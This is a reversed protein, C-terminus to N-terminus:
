PPRPRGRLDGHAIPAGGGGGGGWAPPGPWLHLVPHDDFANDPDCLGGHESVPKCLPKDLCCCCCGAGGVQDQLSRQIADQMDEDAEEEDMGTVLDVM